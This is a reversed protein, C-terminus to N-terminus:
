RFEYNKAAREMFIKMSNEDMQHFGETRVIQNIKNVAFNFCFDELESFNHKISACYFACVNKITMDNKIIDVCKLKLEEEKYDNGLFLLDMTKETEIDICDTYLYKLFAYYVDYSYETIVIVNDTSETIARETFKSEFYKSKSEIICKQM